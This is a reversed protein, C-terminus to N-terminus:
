IFLFKTVTEISLCLIGALTDVPGSLLFLGPFLRSTIHAARNGNYYSPMTKIASAIHVCLYVYERERIEIAVYLENPWSSYTSAGSDSLASRSASIQISWKM